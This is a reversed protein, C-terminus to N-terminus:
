GNIIYFLKDPYDGSGFPLKQYGTNFSIIDEGRKEIGSGCYDYSMDPKM